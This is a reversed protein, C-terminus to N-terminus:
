AMKNNNKNNVIVSPHSLKQSGEKGPVSMYERRQVALASQMRNYFKQCMTESSIKFVEELMRKGGPCNKMEGRKYRGSKQQLHLTVEFFFTKSHTLPDSEYITQILDLLLELSQSVKLFCCFVLHFNELKIPMRFKLHMVEENESPSQLGELFHLRSQKLYM